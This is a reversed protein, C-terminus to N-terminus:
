CTSRYACVNFATNGNFPASPTAIPDGDSDVLFVREGSQLGADHHNVQVNTFQVTGLDPLQPFPKASISMPTELIWEATAKSSPYPVTSVTTSYRQHLTVNEVVVKWLGSDLIVEQIEAHIHDGPHVVGIKLAPAPIVEWWAYYTAGNAGVDQATGAQILTKDTVLCGADVCGGGIGVWMSSSQPLPVDSRPRATPVKWDAAVHRFGTLKDLSELMGQNYGAWNTTKGGNVVEVPARVSATPPPELAPLEFGFLALASVFFTFANM